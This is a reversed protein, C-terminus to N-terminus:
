RAQNIYIFSAVFETCLVSEQLIVLLYKANLSSKSLTHSLAKANKIFIFNESGYLLVNVKAVFIDNMLDLTLASNLECRLIQQKQHLVM